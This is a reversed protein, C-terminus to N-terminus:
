GVVALVDQRCLYVLLDRREERGAPDGAALLDALRHAEGDLALALMPGAAAAFVWSRGLARVEVGRPHPRPPAPRPLTDRVVVDDDLREDVIGWPLTLRPRPEAHADQWDFFEDLVDDAWRALLADRLARAHGRREEASARRPLDLRYLEEARLRDALWGLLDVGAPRILGVTLHLSPEGGAMADHWHGRPVHIVGGAELHGDWVPAGDPQEPLAVDRDLPHARTMGHVRWRKRGAVQLVLVDHDDWHMGFGQRERWSAYLNVQVREGLERELGSALGRVPGHLQDVGDLVLTAGAQLQERLRAPELVAYTVGRRTTHSRSYRDEAVAGGDRALRLRPAPLRHDELIRNLDAWSLLREFRDPPGAQHFFRRGCYERL